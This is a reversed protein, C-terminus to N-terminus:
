IQEESLIAPETRIIKTFTLSCASLLMLLNIGFVALCLVANDSLSIMRYPLDVFRQFQQQHCIGSGEADQETFWISNTMIKPPLICGSIEVKIKEKVGEVILYHKNEKTNKVVGCITGKIIQPNDTAREVIYVIRNKFLEDIDILM